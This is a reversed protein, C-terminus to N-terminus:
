APSNYANPSCTHPQQQAPRDIQYKTVSMLGCSEDGVTGVGDSTSSASPTANGHFGGCCCCFCSVCRRRLQRALRRVDARVAPDIFWAAPAVVTTSHGLWAFLTWTAPDICLGDGCFPLLTYLAFFPAWLVVCATGVAALSCEGRGGQRDGAAAMKFARTALMAVSGTLGTAAPLLFAVLSQTVVHKRSLSVACVDELVPADDDDSDGQRTGVALGVPLAALGSVVWSSTIIVVALVRPHREALTAYCRRPSILRLLCDVDLGVLSWMTSAIFLVQATLWARCAQGGFTWARVAETVAAAPVVLVAAALQVVALNATLLRRVVPRTSRPGSALSSGLVIANLLVAVVTLLSGYVAVASGPLWSPVPQRPGPSRTDSVVVYIWGLSSTQNVVVDGDEAMTAVRHKKKGRVTANIIRESKV